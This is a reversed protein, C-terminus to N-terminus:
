DLVRMVQTPSWKGGRSTRVGMDDLTNAIATLTQGAQRLPGIIKMARQAEARAKEQVAANRKM